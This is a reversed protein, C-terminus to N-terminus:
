NGAAEKKGSFTSEGLLQEPLRQITGGVVGQVLLGAEFGQVLYSVSQVLLGAEFGMWTTAITWDSLRTQSKTVGHVAACWAKRDKVTEWLKGLNMDMSDTIGDLWRMKQWGRRRGDEVKGLILTKELSDTLEEWWTALTNSSWSWCWDKWHTNLTSKWM